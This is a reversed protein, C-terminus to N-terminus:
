KVFLDSCCRNLLLYGFNIIKLSDVLSLSLFSHTFLKWLSHRLVQKHNQFIDIPSYLIFLWGNPSRKIKELSQLEVLILCVPRALDQFVMTMCLPRSLNKFIQKCWIVKFKKSIKGIFYDKFCGKGRTVIVLSSAESHIVTKIIKYILEM